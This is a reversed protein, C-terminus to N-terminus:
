GNNETILGKLKDLKFGSWIEEETEVIPASRFGMDVFQKAQELNQMLSLTLYPINNDDLFKKTRECQICNENTWVRIM